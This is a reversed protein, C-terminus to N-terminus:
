PGPSLRATLNRLHSIRALELAVRSGYRNTGGAKRDAYTVSFDPGSIASAPREDIAPGQRWLHEAQACTANSLAKAEWDLLNAPALKLGTDTRPAIPGLVNDIDREARALLRGLAAADDTVWGEVYAEFDAQSAYTAM